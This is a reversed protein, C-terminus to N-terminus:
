RFLNNSVPISSQDWPGMLLAMGDNNVTTTAYVNRFQVWRKGDWTDHCQGGCAMFIWRLTGKRTRAGSNMNGMWIPERLISQVYTSATLEPDNVANGNGNMFPTLTNFVFRSVVGGALYIVRDPSLGRRRTGKWMNRDTRMLISGWISYTDSTEGQTGNKLYTTNYTNYSSTYGAQHFAAFPDVDGEESDDCRQLTIGGYSSNDVSSLNWVVTFSGDASQGPREIANAVMIHTNGTSAGWQNSNEWFSSSGGGLTGCMGFVGNSPVAALANATGGYAPAVTATCGAANAALYSFRQTNETTTSLCCYAWHGKRQTDASDRFFVVERVFEEPAGSPTFTATSSTGTIVDSNSWGRAGGGTGTHRPLIVAYGIGSTPDYTVGILEGEALTTAQTIKEGRLFTGTPFTGFPIKLTSPGQMVIWAATGLTVTVGSSFGSPVDLLPDKETWAFGGAGNNADPAVGSANRIVCSTTSLVQVIQFTGNNGASSAGTFTIFRGESGGFADTSLGSLGTVTILDSTKVTISPATGSNTTVGAGWKDNQPLGTTDKTTADSSALVKWGAKKLCRTLKYISQFTWASTYDPPAVNALVVHAM